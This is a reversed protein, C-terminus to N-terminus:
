ERDDLRDLEDLTLNSNGCLLDVGGLDALIFYNIVACYHVLSTSVRLIRLNMTKSFSCGDPGNPFARRRRDCSLCQMFLVLRNVLM